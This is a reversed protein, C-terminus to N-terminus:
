NGWERKVEWDTSFHKDAVDINVTGKIVDGTLKGRYTTIATGSHGQSFVQFSIQDGKLVGNTISREGSSKTVTGTVAAGDWKLRFTVKPVQGDPNAPATWHWTGTLNPSADAARSLCGLGSLLGLFLLIHKM